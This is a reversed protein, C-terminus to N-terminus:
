HAGSRRRPQTLEIASGDRARMARRFPFVLQGFSTGFETPRKDKPMYYTGFVMDWVPLLAAFNKDRIRARLHSAM